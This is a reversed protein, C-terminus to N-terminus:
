KYFFIMILGFLDGWETWFFILKEPSSQISKSGTLVDEVDLGAGVEEVALLLDPGAMALDVNVLGDEWVGLRDVEPRPGLRLEVEAIWNLYLNRKSLAKAESM